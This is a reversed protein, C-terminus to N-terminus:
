MTSVLIDWEGNGWGKITYSKINNEEVMDFLEKLSKSIATNSEKGPLSWELMFERYKPSNFENLRNEVLYKKLNFNDM